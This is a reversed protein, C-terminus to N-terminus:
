ATIPASEGTANFASHYTVEGQPLPAEFAHALFYEPPVGPLSLGPVPKFVFRSYYAPDGLLICGSAGMERLTALTREM